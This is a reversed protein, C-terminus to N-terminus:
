EIVKPVGFFGHEAIPANALVDDRRCLVLFEDNRMGVIHLRGAEDFMQFQRMIDVELGFEIQHPSHAAFM